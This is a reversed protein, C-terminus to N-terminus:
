RKVNGSKDVFFIKIGLKELFPMVDDILNKHVDDSPLAIAVESNRKENMTKMSKYIAKAIHDMKQSHTFEKKYRRSTDKSSTQGKAEVYLYKGSRSAVIDYGHESTDSSSEITYGNKELYSSLSKIVDNENLM